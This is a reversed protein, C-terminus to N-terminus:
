KGARWVKRVVGVVDSARVKERWPNPRSVTPLAAFEYREADAYVCEHVRYGESAGAAREAANPKYRFVGVEGVRPSGAEVVCIDGKRLLPWMSGTGGLTFLRACQPHGTPAPVTARYAGAKVLANAQSYAPLIEVARAATLATLM